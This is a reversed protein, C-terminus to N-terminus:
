ENHGGISSLKAMARTLQVSFDYLQDPKKMLKPQKDPLKAEFISAMEDLADELGEVDGTNYVCHLIKEFCEKADYEYKAVEDVHVWEEMPDVYPELPPEFPSQCIDYM